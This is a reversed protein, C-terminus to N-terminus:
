QVSAGSLCLPWVSTDRQGNTQEISNSVCVCVCVCMLSRAVDRLSKTPPDRSMNEPTLWGARLRSQLCVHSVRVHWLCRPARRVTERTSFVTWFQARTRIVPGERGCPSRLTIHIDTHRRFRNVFILVLRVYLSAWKPRHHRRSLIFYVASNQESM